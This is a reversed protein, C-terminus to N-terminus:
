LSCVEQLLGVLSRSFIEESYYSVCKARAREGAEAAEVPHSLVYRIADALAVMDNPPVTWGCGDLIEPLDSVATAIIPKAMAMAEFVKCPVQSQALPTDRLPLVVLDALALYRPVESKPKSGLSVLYPAYREHRQLTRLYDTEPGVVVLRLREDNIAALVALIEELGKHPRGVGAFMLIRDGMLGLDRKLENVVAPPFPKYTETNVGLPVVVGGFNRSLFRSTCIVRDAKTILREVRMAWVDNLPFRLDKLLRWWRAAAPLSRWVASDWEDLYVVARVGRRRKLRLAVPITDMYAKMAIIVSGEVAREIKKVEWLFDPWRYLKPTPVVTYPFENRFPECVGTGMDPGVVQTEFAPQLARALATAAWVTNASIDHVLVTVKRNAVAVSGTVQRVVHFFYEHNQGAM